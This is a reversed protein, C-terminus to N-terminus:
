PDRPVIQLWIFSAILLKRAKPVDRLSGAPCFTSLTKLTSKVAKKLLWPRDLLAVLLPMEETDYEFVMAFYDAIQDLDRDDVKLDILRQHHANRGKRVKPESNNTM